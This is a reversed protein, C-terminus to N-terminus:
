TLQISCVNPLARKGCAGETEATLRGYSALHIHNHQTHRESLTDRWRVEVPGWGSRVLRGLVRGRMRVRCEGALKPMHAAPDMHLACVCVHVCAYGCVRVQDQERGEEKGTVPTDKYPPCSRQDKLEM